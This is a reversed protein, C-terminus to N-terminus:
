FLVGKKPKKTCDSESVPVVKEGDEAVKVNNVNYEGNDRDIMEVRFTDYEKFKKSITFAYEDSPKFAKKKSDVRRGDNTYITIKKATIKKTANVVIVVRKKELPNTPPKIEHMKGCSCTIIVILLALFAIALNKKM